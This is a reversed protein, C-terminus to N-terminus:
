APQILGLVQGSTVPEGEGVLIEALTGEAPATVVTVAKASEIECLDQGEVVPDGANVYWFLVLPECGAEEWEDARVEIPASAM